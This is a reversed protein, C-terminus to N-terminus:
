FKYGLNSFLSYNRGILNDLSSNQYFETSSLEFNLVFQSPLKVRGYISVGMLQEKPTTYQSASTASLLNPATQPTDSSVDVQTIRLKFGPKIKKITSLEGFISASSAKGGDRFYITDTQYSSVNSGRQIIEQTDKWLDSRVDAGLLIPGLDKELGVQLAFSSGGSSFNIPNRDNAIVMSDTKLSFIGNTHFRFSETTRHYKLFIEPDFLGQYSQQLKVSATQIEGTGSGYNMNAGWSMKESLGHEFRLGALTVSSRTQFGGMRRERDFYGVNSNIEIEDQPTYYLAASRLLGAQASLSGFFLTSLVLFTKM